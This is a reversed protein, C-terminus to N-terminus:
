NYEFYLEGLNERKEEDLLEKYLEYLKYLEEEFLKEIAPANFFVEIISYRYLEHEIDYRMDYREMHWKWFKEIDNLDRLSLSMTRDFDRENFIINAEDEVFHKIENDLVDEILDLGWEVGSVRVEYEGACMEIEVSVGESVLIEKFQNKKYTYGNRVVVDSNILQFLDYYMDQKEIDTYEDSDFALQMELIFKLCDKLNEFSYECYSNTYNSYNKTTRAANSVSATTKQTKM